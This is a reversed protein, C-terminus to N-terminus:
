WEMQSLVQFYTHGGEETITVVNEDISVSDSECSSGKDPWCFLSVRRKKM